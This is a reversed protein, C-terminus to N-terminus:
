TKLLARLKALARRHQSKVTDLPKKLIGAIERFTLGDDYRFRLVTRAGPELRGAAEGVASATMKTEAIESPLPAPDILADTMEEDITSAPEIKRKRLWDIATNKAIAFLWARFSTREDYRKLNKWVKAFVEQTVDEADPGSATYRYTFHYMPRLYRAILMRLAEEGGNLYSRILEEDSRDPSDTRNMANSLTDYNSVATVIGPTNYIM